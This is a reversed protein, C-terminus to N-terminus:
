NGSHRVSYSLIKYFWNKGAKNKTRLKFVYLLDFPETRKKTYLSDTPNERPWFVEFMLFQVCSSQIYCGLMQISIEFFCLFMIAPM